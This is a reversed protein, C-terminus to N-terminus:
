LLQLLLKPLWWEFLLWSSEAALAVVTVVVVAMEEVSAM